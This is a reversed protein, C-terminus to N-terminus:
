QPSINGVSTLPVYSHFVMIRLEKNKDGFAWTKSHSIHCVPNTDNNDVLCSWENHEENFEMAKEIDKWADVKKGEEKDKENEWFRFHAATKHKM